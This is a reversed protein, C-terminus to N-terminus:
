ESKSLIVSTGCHNKSHRKANDSLKRRATAKIDKDIVVIQNNQLKIQRHLAKLRPDKRAAEVLDKLKAKQQELERELQLIHNQVAYAQDIISM